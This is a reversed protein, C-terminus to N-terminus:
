IKGDDLETIFRSYPLTEHTLRMSPGSLLMLALAMAFGFWARGRTAPKEYRDIGLIKCCGSGIPRARPPGNARLEVKMQACGLGWGSMPLIQSGLCGCESEDIETAKCQGEM